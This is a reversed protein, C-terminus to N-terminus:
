GLSMGGDIVITQGTIYAAQPSCLFAALAAVEAPTGYRGLPIGQCAQERRERDHGATLATDVFGPAIVNVTTRWRAAELALTKCLGQLAGKAAAYAAGNGLGLVGALSGIFVVRGCESKRLHRALAKSLAAGAIAHVALLADWEEPKTFAIPKEVIHGAAHILVTPPGLAAAVQEVLAEAAGPVALDAQFAAARVAGSHALQAALAEAAAGNKQYQLAVDHPQLAAAGGAGNALALACARGIGGSAGTILAVPRPM